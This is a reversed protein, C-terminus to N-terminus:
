QMAASVKHLCKITIGFGSLQGVANSSCRYTGCFFLYEANVVASRLLNAPFPKRDLKTMQM